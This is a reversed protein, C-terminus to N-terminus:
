KQKLIHKTVAVSSFDIWKGETKHSDMRLYLLILILIRNFINLFMVGVKCFSLPLNPDFESQCQAFQCKLPFSFFRVPKKPYKCTLKLSKERMM